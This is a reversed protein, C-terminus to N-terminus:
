TGTWGSRPVVVRDPWTYNWSVVPTEVGTDNPHWSVIALGNGFVHNRPEGNEWFQPMGKVLWISSASGVINESWWKTEVYTPVLMTILEARRAEQAAKLTWDRMDGFPPHVFVREGAWSQRLGDSAIDWYKELLANSSSAAADVTFGNFQESLQKFLEPPTEWHTASSRRRTGDSSGRSRRAKPPEEGFRRLSGLGNKKLWYKRFECMLNDVDELALRPRFDPAVDTWEAPLWEDQTDRLTRCTDIPEAVPDIKRLAWMSGGHGEKRRTGRGYVFVWDSNDLNPYVFKIDLAVQYATFDGIEYGRSLIAHVMKLSNSAACLSDLEELQDAVLLGARLFESLSSARWTNTSVSEGAASAEELRSVAAKLSEDYPPDLWGVYKEWSDSRNLLRYIVANFLRERAPSVMGDDDTHNVVHDLMFNTGRDLERYINCIRWEQLTEDETWPAPLNDVFRRHWIAQREYAFKGVDDLTFDLVDNEPEDEASEATPRYREVEDAVSALAEPAPEPPPSLEEIDVPM